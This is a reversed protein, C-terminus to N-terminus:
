DWRAKRNRKRDSKSRYNTNDIPKAMPVKINAFPSLVVRKGDDVGNIDVIEIDKDQQKILKAITAGVGAGGSGPVIVKM